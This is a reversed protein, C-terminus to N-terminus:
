AGGTMLLDRTKPLKGITQEQVNCFKTFDVQFVSINELQMASVPILTEKFFIGAGNGEM